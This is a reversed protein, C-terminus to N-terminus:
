RRGFQVRYVIYAGLVGGLEPLYFIIAIPDYFAFILGPILRFLIIIILFSRGKMRIPLFYMLATIERNMIPFLSYSLLGLIGGWALGVLDYPYELPIYSILSLRLLIYFLASFLSSIIYLKILFKTGHSVEINRSMFYLLFLMIILFFLGFFDGSSVFLATVFTHFTYKYVLGNLSLYIYEPIGYSYFVLAVISFLFILFFLVKTGLYQTKRPYPRQYTKLLRDRQRDQRKLYKKLTKPGKDLYVRPKKM